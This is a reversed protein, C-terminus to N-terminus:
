LRGQPVRYFIAKKSGNKAMVLMEVFPIQSEKKFFCEWAKFIMSFVLALASNRVLQFDM